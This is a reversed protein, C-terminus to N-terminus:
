RDEGSASAEIDEQLLAAELWREEQRALLERESNLQNVLLQFLDADRRFLEPDALKEETAKISAELSAMEAPLSELTHKDKFSLKRNLQRDPRNPKTVAKSKGSSASPKQSQQKQRRALYDSYGGAHTIIRGDDEFALVATVTRDIFDRDHSIIIITGKYDAIVEQLLELTEMDLDNTPEDLVLMNHQEVFLRALLLRNQEGGSLTRVRQTVKYEDFLFDQLYRKVHVTQGQREVTDGGDPCLVQWPTSDPNLAERQQDFYSAELGYGMKVRGADPALQDLLIKVLTSKGAGNPGIIGIRDGKRIIQNFHKFLTRRQADKQPPNAITLPAPVSATLDIAELVIQGGGETSATMMRSSRGAGAAMSARIKRMDQLERMRGQNRKRRASIGERSWRTESSIRKDLKERRVQEEALIVEAWEDFGDFGGQRRRCKGNDIWLTGSGIRNLFTRDHSIVVLAGTHTMLLDEMWTITPLDLHNTPEDMLLVDPEKVLARALAVRRSEGGSLGDSLRNPDMGMRTLYADAKHPPIVSDGDSGTGHQVISSLSMGKPLAPAQPLYSVTKGPAIWLSGEDTEALGAMIKMLTSKGAGNRGVLCLRDGVELSVDVGRLLWRDGLNVGIDHVSLLNEAM